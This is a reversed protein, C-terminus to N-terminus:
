NSYPNRLLPNPYNGLVLQNPKLAKLYIGSGCGFGGFPISEEDGGRYIIIDEEVRRLPHGWTMYYYKRDSINEFGFEISDQGYFTATNVDWKFPLKGIKDNLQYDSFFVDAIFLDFDPEVHFSKESWIKYSVFLTILLLLIIIGAFKIFKLFM